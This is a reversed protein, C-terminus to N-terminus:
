QKGTLHIGDLNKLRNVMALPSSFYFERPHLPLGLVFPSFFGVYMTLHGGTFCQLPM